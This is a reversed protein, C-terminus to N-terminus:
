RGLHALADRLPASSIQILGEFPRDLQLILFVAGSVSLACVVLTVLVTANWPASLGFSAFIIALWFTLVLLFPTPISSGHQERLMWRTQGLGVATDLAQTQIARQEDTRPALAHIEDYLREGGSASPDFPAPRSGDTPWVRELTKTVAERLVARAKHAEPGYHALARDLLITDAALQILEGRQLDFSDKASAVLLGLVLAAMTAILGTGLKVIEHSEPSLHHAPLVSRLFMGLLVGGLTFGLVM